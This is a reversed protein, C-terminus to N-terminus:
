RFASPPSVMIKSYEESHSDRNASM